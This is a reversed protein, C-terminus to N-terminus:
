PCDPWSIPGIKEPVAKVNVELAFVFVIVVFSQSKKTSQWYVIGFTFGCTSAINWLKGSGSKSKDPPVNPLLKSKDPCDIYLKDASVPISKFM